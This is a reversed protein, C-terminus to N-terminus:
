RGGRRQGRAAANFGAVTVSAADLGLVVLGAGGVPLEGVDLEVRLGLVPLREDLAVARARADRGALLDAEADAGVGGRANVMSM